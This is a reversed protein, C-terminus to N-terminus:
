DDVLILETTYPPCRPSTTHWYERFPRGDPTVGDRAKTCFSTSCTWVCVCGVESGFRNRIVPSRRRCRPCYIPVRVVRDIRALTTTM